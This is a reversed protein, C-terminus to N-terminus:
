CSSEIYRHTTGTCVFGIKTGTGRSDSFLQTCHCLPHEKLVHTLRQPGSLRPTTYLAIVFPRTVSRHPTHSHRSTHASHATHTIACTVCASPLSHLILQVPWCLCAFHPALSVLSHFLLRAPWCSFSTASTVCARLCHTFFSNSLGACALLYHRALSVLLVFCVSLFSCSLLFHRLPVFFCLSSTEAMM